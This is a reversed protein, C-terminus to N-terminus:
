GHSRGERVAQRHADVWGTLALYHRLELDYINFPTMGGFLNCM